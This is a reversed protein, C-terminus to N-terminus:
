KQVKFELRVTSSIHVKVKEFCHEGLVKFLIKIMQSLSGSCKIQSMLLVIVVKVLMHGCVALHTNGQFNGMYSSILGGGWKEM